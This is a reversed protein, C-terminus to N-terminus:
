LPWCFIGFVETFPVRSGASEWCGNYSCGEGGHGGPFPWNSLHQSVASLWTFSVLRHSRELAMGDDLEEHLMSPIRDSTGINSCSRGRQGLFQDAAGSRQSPAVFSRCSSPTPSQRRLGSGAEEGWSDNVPSFGRGQQSIGATDTNGTTSERPETGGARTVRGPTGASVVEQLAKPASLIIRETHYDAPFFIPRSVVAPLSPPM